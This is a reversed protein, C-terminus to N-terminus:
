DQKTAGAPKPPELLVLETALYIPVPDVSASHLRKEYSVVGVYRGVFNEVKIASDPPIEVYAITRDRSAQPDVLRYRPNASGPPYLASIRLEGEVQIGKPVPETTTPFSARGEFFERRKTEAEDGMRRVRDVAAALDSMSKIEQIRADAYKRAYEDDTQEAIPRYRALIDDYDREGAPKAVEEKAATDIEGLASRWHSTKPSSPSTAAATLPSGIVASSGAPLPEESKRAPVSPPASASAGTGIPQVYARSIWLTAGPPPEIRFFGDPNRGIINVATGKPLMAQVTYKNDNLLSGARVRVNDGNIIGTQGDTTDVYEGSVLSFAGAPPAIEYWDGREGVVTVHNGADLKCVTYHNTSDGSRVYVDSATIQGKWSAAVERSANNPAGGPDQSAPAAAVFLVSAVTPFLLMPSTFM